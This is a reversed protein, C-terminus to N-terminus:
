RTYCLYLKLDQSAAMSLVTRLSNRDVVHAFVEDPHFSDYKVQTFGRAVLRAKFRNVEGRENTKRKHVWKCTLLKHGKAESRKARRWVKFKEMSKIEETRAEQWQFHEPCGNRQLSQNYDPEPQLSYDINVFNCASSTCMLRLGHQQSFLKSYNKDEVFQMMPVPDDCEAIVESFRKREGVPLSGAALEAKAM